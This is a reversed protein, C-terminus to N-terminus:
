LEPIDFDPAGPDGLDDPGLLDNLRVVPLPIRDAWRDIYGDNDIHVALSLESRIEDAEPAVLLVWTPPLRPRPADAADDDLRLDLELQGNIAVIRKTVEGRKRLTTVPDTTGTATTGRATM